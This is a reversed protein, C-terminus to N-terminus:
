VQDPCDMHGIGAHVDIDGYNADSHSLVLDSCTLSFDLKWVSSSRALRGMLESRERTVKTSLLRSPPRGGAVRASAM